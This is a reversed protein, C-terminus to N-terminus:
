LKIIIPLMFWLFTMLLHIMYTCTHLCSWHVLMMRQLTQSIGVTTTARNCYALFSLFCAEVNHLTPVSIHLLHFCIVAYPKKLQRAFYRLHLIPMTMQWSYTFREKGDSVLLSFPRFWLTENGRQGLFPRLWSSLSIFFNPELRRNRMPMNLSANWKSCHITFTLIRLLPLCTQAPCWEREEQYVEVHKSEDNLDLPQVDIM